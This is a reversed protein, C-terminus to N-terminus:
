LLASNMRQATVWSASPVMSYALLVALSTSCASSAVELRGKHGKGRCNFPIPAMRHALSQIKDLTLALEPKGKNHGLATRLSIGAAVSTLLAPM